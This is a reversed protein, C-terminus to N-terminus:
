GPPRPAAPRRPRESRRSPHAAPPRTSHDRPSSRAARGQEAQERGAAGALVVQGRLGAHAAEVLEDVPDGEGAQRHLQGDFPLRPRQRGPDVEGRVPDDLLRQGVHELMCRAGSRLDVDAVGLPVKPQLDDVGPRAHQGSGAGEAGGASPDRTPWRGPGARGAPAPRRTRRDGRRAGGGRRRSGPAPSSEATVRTRMASSWARTRVPNVMIRSAAPISTTPWAASPTSATRSARESRGSTIRISMRIGRSSPRSAVRRTRASRGAVRTMM